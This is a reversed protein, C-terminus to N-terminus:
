AAEQPAVRVARGQRRLLIGGAGAAGVARRDVAITELRPATADAGASRRRRVPTGTVAVQDLVVTPGPTPWDVGNGVADDLRVVAIDAGITGAGADRFAVLVDRAANPRGLAARFHRMRQGLELRRADDMPSGILSLLRQLSRRDVETWPHGTPATLVLRGVAGPLEANIGEPGLPAEDVTVSATEAGLIAAAQVCTEAIREELTARSAIAFHADSSRRLL